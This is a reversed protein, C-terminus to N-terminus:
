VVEGIAEILLFKRREGLRTAEVINTADLALSGDIVTLESTAADALEARYRIVYARSALTLTGGALEKDAQSFDERTAWQPYDTTTEVSEGFQNRATITRRVVIRRDLSPM